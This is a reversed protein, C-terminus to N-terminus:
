KIKGDHFQHLGVTLTKNATYTEFFTTKTM